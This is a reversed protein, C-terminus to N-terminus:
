KHIRSDNFARLDHSFVARDKRASFEPERRMRLTTTTLLHTTERQGLYFALAVMARAWTNPLPTHINNVITWCKTIIGDLGRPMLLLNRLILKNRVGRRTRFRCRILIYKLIALPGMRQSVWAIGLSNSPFSKRAGTSRFPHRDMILTRALTLLTCSIRWTRNLRLSNIHAAVVVEQSLHLNWRPPRSPWCSGRRERTHM